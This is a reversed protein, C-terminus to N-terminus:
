LTNRIALNITIYTIQTNTYKSTDMSKNIKQMDNHINTHWNYVRYEYRHVYKWNDHLYVLSVIPIGIELQFKKETTEISWSLFANHTIM